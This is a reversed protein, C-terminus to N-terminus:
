MNFKSQVNTIINGTNSFNQLHNNPLFHHSRPLSHCAALQTLV